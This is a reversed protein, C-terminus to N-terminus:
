SNIARSVEAYSIAPISIGSDRNPCGELVTAPHRLLFREVRETSMLITLELVIGCLACAFKPYVVLDDETMVCGM